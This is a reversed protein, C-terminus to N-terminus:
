PALKKAICELLVKKEEDSIKVKSFVQDPDSFASLFNNYLYRM